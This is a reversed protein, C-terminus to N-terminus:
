CTMNVKYKTANKKLHKTKKKDENKWKDQIGWADKGKNMKKKEKGGEEQNMQRNKVFLPSYLLTYRLTDDNRYSM